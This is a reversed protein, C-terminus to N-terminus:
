PTRWQDQLQLIILLYVLNSREQFYLGNFWSFRIRDHIRQTAEISYGIYSLYDGIQAEDSLGEIAYAVSVASHVCDLTLDFEEITTVSATTTSTTTM